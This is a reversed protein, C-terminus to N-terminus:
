RLKSCVPCQPNRKVDMLTFSGTKGDFLLLKGVLPKGYGTILKIVELAELAGLIGPAPGLVPFPREEKIKSPFVCQLCPGKGPVVVLLQGYSEYVGAHVLPKRYEVCLKNLLVRTEWNDLADVVIDVQPVLKEGLDKDFRRKIGTIKVLPNLLKLKEKASDIKPRGIDKTFHIIQRNLNSLEVNEPDVIIIEGVGAAALYYLIASGLGGVGVILVKSKKLKVQGEIGFIRIQRDYRTIEEPSLRTDM